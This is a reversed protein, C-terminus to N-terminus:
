QKVCPAYTETGPDWNTPSTWARDNDCRNCEKQSTTYTTEDSCARCTGSQDAFETNACKHACTGKAPTPNLVSTNAASTQTWVRQKCSGCQGQTTTYSTKDACARCAKGNLDFFYSDVVNRGDSYTCNPSCVGISPRKTESYPPIIEEYIRASSDCYDCSPKITIIADFSNTNGAARCYYGTNVSSEWGNIDSFKADSGTRLYKCVGGSRSERNPCLNCVNTSTNGNTVNTPFDQEAYCSICGGNGDDVERDESCVCAHNQITQHSTCTILRCWGGSNKYTFKRNPCADECDAQTRTWIDTATTDCPTCDAVGGNIDKFYGSNCVCAGSSCTGHGSQCSGGDNYIYSREGDILVCGTTCEDPYFNDCFCNGNEDEEQGWSCVCSGEMCVKDSGCPVWDDEYTYVPVGNVMKCDTTCTSATFNPCSIVVCGGNGDDEYGEACGCTGSDNCVMNTGCTAGEAYTYSPEGDVLTCATTCADAIFGPCTDQQNGEEDGGTDSGGAPDGAKRPRLDKNFTFTMDATETCSSMEPSISAFPWQLTHMQECISKPINQATLTFTSSNADTTVNPSIAYKGDQSNWNSLDPVRGTMAQTSADMARVMLRHALDNADHKRMASSYGVIGGASIIAMIALTGLAELLSRGSESRNNRMKVM